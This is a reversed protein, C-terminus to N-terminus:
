CNKKNTDYSSLTCEKNELIHKKLFDDYKENDMKDLGDKINDKCKKNAVRRKKREEKTLKEGKKNLPKKSKLLDRYKDIDRKAITNPSKKLDGDAKLENVSKGYTYGLGHIQKPVIMVVAKCIIAKKMCPNIDRIGEAEYIGKAIDSEAKELMYASAPIHDRDFQVKDTRKTLANKKSEGYTTVQGCLAIQKGTVQVNGNGSNSSKSKTSKTKKNKSVDVGSVESVQGMIVDKAEGVINAGIKAPSTDIVKIAKQAVASGAIMSAGAQESSSIAVQSTDYINAPYQDASIPSECILGAEPDKIDVGIAGALDQLVKYASPKAADMEEKTARRCTAPNYLPINENQWTKLNESQNKLYDNVAQKAGGKVSDVLDAM